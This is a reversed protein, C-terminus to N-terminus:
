TKNKKLRRKEAPLTPLRPTGEDAIECDSITETGDERPGVNSETRRQEVDPLLFLLRLLYVQSRHNSRSWIKNTVAIKVRQQFM